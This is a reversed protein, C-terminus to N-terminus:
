GKRLRRYLKRFSATYRFTKTALLASMDQDLAALAKEAPEARAAAAEAVALRTELRELEAELQVTRDGAIKSHEFALQKGAHWEQFSESFLKALDAPPLDSASRRLVLGFEVSDAGQEETTLGDVLLWQNGLTEISYEIVPVFEEITWCHVHISRERHRELTSAWQEPDTLRAHFAALGAPDTRTRTVFDVIHEDDVEVAGAEFDAVVHELATPLRDEDFTRRRDPLLILLTGGPRLVRHFDDIARLPNALHELVHSSVIFDESESGVPGMAERNLDVVLDPKPFTEGELEPFLEANRGPDWRDLYRVELWRNSEVLPVHGPGVEIGSGVLHRTLGRRFGSNPM